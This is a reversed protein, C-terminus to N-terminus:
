EAYLVWVEDGNVFRKLDDESEVELFSYSVEIGNPLGGGEADVSVLKRIGEFTLHAPRDDCTMANSGEPLEAAATGKVRADDSDDAEVLYVCEHVPYNSQVGDDYRVLFVAHAAYWPMERGKVFFRM